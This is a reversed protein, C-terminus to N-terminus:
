FMDGVCAAHHRQTIEPVSFSCKNIPTQFKFTNSEKTYTLTNIFTDQSIIYFSAIPAISIVKVILDLPVKLSYM